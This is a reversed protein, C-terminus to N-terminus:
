YAIKVVAIRIPCTTPGPGNASDESAFEGCDPNIKTKGWNQIQGASVLGDPFPREMFLGIYDPQQAGLKSQAHFPAPHAPYGLMKRAMAPDDLIRVKIQGAIV